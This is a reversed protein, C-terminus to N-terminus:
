TITNTGQKRTQLTQSDSGVAYALPTISTHVYLCLAILLHVTILDTDPGQLM